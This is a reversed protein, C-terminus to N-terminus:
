VVDADVVRVFAEPHRVGIGLHLFLVGEVLGQKKKSFPDVVVEVAQLHIVLHSWDASFLIAHLNTGTGKTLNSPVVSSVFAPHGLLTRGRWTAGAGSFSETDRLKRRVGPTTLWGSALEDVNAAAPAEEVGTVLAYTPAGGNAGIAVEPTDARGLLGVPQDGGGAEIAAVDVATAAAARLEVEVLEAAESVAELLRSWGVGVAGLKIPLTESDFALDPLSIPSGPVEAIWEVVGGDTTRVVRLTERGGDIITAGLQAVRPVPRRALAQPAPQEFILEAGGTATGAQLSRLALLEPPVLLGGRLNLSNPVHRALEESVEREFSGEGAAEALLGRGLSYVGIADGQVVSVGGARRAREDRLLKEVKSVM